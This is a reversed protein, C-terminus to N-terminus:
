WLTRAPYQTILEDPTLIVLGHVLAQCVLMRDFPDNHLRPLRQVHLVADEELPLSEVGRLRRQDPVFKSPPSPLSLRGLGFKVAIEWSSVASL